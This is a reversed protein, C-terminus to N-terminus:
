LQNWTNGGVFTWTNSGFIAAWTIGSIPAACASWTVTGLTTISAATVVNVVGLVSNTTPVAWYETRPAANNLHWTVTYLSNVPSATDTPELAISFRGNVVNVRANIEVRRGDAATFSPSATITIYGSAITGDPATIAIEAVTTMAMARASIALLLAWRKM